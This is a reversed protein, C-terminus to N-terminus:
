RQEVPSAQPTQAGADAVPIRQLGLEKLKEDSLSNIDLPSSEDVKAQLAAPLDTPLAKGWAVHAAHFTRTHMLKFREAKSVSADNFTENIHGQLQSNARASLFMPDEDASVLPWGMFESLCKECLEIRAVSTQMFERTFSTMRVHPENIALIPGTDDPQGSNIRTFIPVRYEKGDSGEIMCNYVSNGCRSCAIRNLDPM